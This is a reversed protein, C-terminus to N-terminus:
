GGSKPDSGEKASNVAYLDARHPRFKYAKVVKNNLLDNIEAPPVAIPDVGLAKCHMNYMASHKIASDSDNAAEAIRQGLLHYAAAEIRQKMVYSKYAKEEAASRPIKEQGFENIGAETELADAHKEDLIPYKNLWLSEKM